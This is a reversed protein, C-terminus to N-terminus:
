GPLVFREGKRYRCELCVHMYLYSEVVRMLDKNLVFDSPLQLVIDMEPGTALIWGNDKGCLGCTPCTKSDDRFSVATHSRAKCYPNEFFEGRCICPRHRQCFYDYTLSPCTYSHLVQGGYDEPINSNPCDPDTCVHIGRENLCEKSAMYVNQQLHDNSSTRIQLPVFSCWYKHNDEGFFKGCCALRRYLTRYTPIKKRVSSDIVVDNLFEALGNESLVLFDPLTINKNKLYHPMWFALEDFMGANMGAHSNQTLYAGDIGSPDMKDEQVPPIMENVKLDDERPSWDAILSPFPIFTTSSSMTASSPKKQTKGKLFTICVNVLRCKSMNINEIKVMDCTWYFFMDNHYITFINYSFSLIDTSLMFICITYSLDM